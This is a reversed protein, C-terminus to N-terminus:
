ADDGLFKQLDALFAKPKGRPNRLCALVREDELNSTNINEQSRQGARHADRLCITKGSTDSAIRWRGKSTM